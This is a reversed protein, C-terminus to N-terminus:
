LGGIIMWKDGEKRFTLRNHDIRNAWREDPGASYLYQADYDFDVTATKEYVEIAKIDVSYRVEKVDSKIAEFLRDLGEYGYDDRPDSTTSANEYYNRSVMTRLKATDRAAVADRYRNVLNAIVNRESTYEIDTGKIFRPGCASALLGLTIVLLMRISSM